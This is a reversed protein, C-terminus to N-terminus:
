FNFSSRALADSSTTMFHLRTSVGTLVPSFSQVEQPLSFLRVSLRQFSAVNRTAVSSPPCTGQGNQHLYKPRDTLSARRSHCLLSHVQPTRIRHALRDWIFKQVDEKLLSTDDYLVRAVENRDPYLERLFIAAHLYDKANRAIRLCGMVAREVRDEELHEYIRALSREYDMAGNDEAESIMKLLLKAM